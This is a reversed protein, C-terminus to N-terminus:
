CISKCLPCPLFYQCRRLCAKDSSWVLMHGSPQVDDYWDLFKQWFPGQSGDGNVIRRLIYGADPRDWENDNIKHFGFDSTGDFVGGVPEITADTSNSFQFVLPSDPQADFAYYAMVIRGMLSDTWTWRRAMNNFVPVKAPFPAQGAASAFSVLHEATLSNGDMWWIGQLDIGLSTLNMNDTTGRDFVPQADGPLIQRHNFSEIACNSTALLIFVWLLFAFLFVFCCCCSRCCCSFGSTSGASEKSDLLSEAGYGGPGPYGGYEQDAGYGGPDQGSASDYGNM